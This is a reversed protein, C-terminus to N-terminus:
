RGVRFPHLDITPTGGTMLEAMVVATGCSLHLGSRFHGAAVFLNNCGPVRGLYPLGDYSGPRQGSWCRDITTHQLEPLMREAWNRIHAIGAETTQNDYGVEEEVSGALLLGDDRPVLYRHGENTVRRLLPHPTRYLVMQGRIPMIGNDIGLDLLALRAWAGSCICLQEALLTQDPTRVIIHSSKYELSQVPTDPLM